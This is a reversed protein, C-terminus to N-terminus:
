RSQQERDKKRREIMEVGDEESLSHTTPLTSRSFGTFQPVGSTSNAHPACAPDRHLEFTSSSGTRASTPKQNSLFNYM